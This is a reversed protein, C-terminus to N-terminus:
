RRFRSQLHLCIGFVFASVVGVFIGIAMLALLLEWADSPLLYSNRNLVFVDAAWWILTIGPGAFLSALPIWRTGNRRGETNRGAMSLVVLAGIALLIAAAMLGPRMDSLGFLLLQSAAMMVSLREGRGKAVRLSQTLTWASSRRRM